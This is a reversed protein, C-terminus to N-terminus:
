QQSRLGPGARLKQESVKRSPRRQGSLAPPIPPSSFALLSLSSLAFPYPREQAENARIERDIQARTLKSKNNRKAEARIDALVEREPPVNKLFGRVGM